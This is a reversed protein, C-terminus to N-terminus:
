AIRSFRFVPSTSSSAIFSYRSFFLRSTSIPAPIDKQNLLADNKPHDKGISAYQAGPCLVGVGGLGQSGKAFGCALQKVDPFDLLFKQYYPLVTQVQTQQLMVESVWIRYPDETERWPLQRHHRRYWDILLKRTQDIEKLTM